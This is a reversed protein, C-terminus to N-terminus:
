LGAARDARDAHDEAERKLKSLRHHWDGQAQEVCVAARRLYDALESLRQAETELGHALDDADGNLRLAAPGEFHM